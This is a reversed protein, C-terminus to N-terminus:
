PFVPAGPYAAVVDGLADALPGLWPEYNRWQEVADRFIPRRVQESSPTRVARDTEYFRLCREDFELGCYDLLRRIETETDDVMREYIVRHVRGPLVADFHAMLEVYDRYYRGLEVLDYSFHQGRAFHQKFVSFCCQMPHRRADVIKANPLMLHILGVHAFNQPMKDIFFPRDTRRQIRTRALYEEGLSRLREPPLSALRDLYRVGEGPADGRRLSRALAIVDPLEQTGEVLPHSALIQEVLTSGARPMGLVFIPDPAPCGVGARAAFFERTLTAKSREVHAASEAADYDVQRRRVRNGAAYHDFSAAWDERDECAKGLAFELHLRDDDPLAPTQLAREMTAVDDDTFRFTKLNALSWWAEGFSPQLALSRRYATEGDARRGVTKLAHGYSMWLKPQDPVERLLREYLQISPEFDGLRALIAAKLSRYSANDPDTALLREIEDLAAEGKAQRFLVIAYHHRAAAFGPALELCRELLHEADLYRGIRAAVEALMRIAAVDTPQEKLYTKLLREAEPIRNAALAAAPALLRPERTSARIHHAYAADARATEGREHLYDALALWGEAPRADRSIATRLERDVDDASGAEEAVALVLLAIPHGAAVKLIEQAQRAALVPQAALLRLAHALAADVTGLPAQNV